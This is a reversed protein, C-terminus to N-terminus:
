LDIVEVQYGISQIFTLLDSTEIFLTKDNTNPHFSMRSEAMIEQDIYVAIDRDVNNLLGFPSVVGPPLSMKEMLSDSSAMRIRNAGVISKFKDMDLMKHDDMILLYFQTKKKNTLFMTKTRVGEIGEIFSDAQETTLAPPHEVLQFPIALENLKAVVPTYLDM